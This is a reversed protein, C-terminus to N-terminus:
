RWGLWRPRSDCFRQYEQPFLARLYGEEPLVVGYHLTLAFVPVMMATGPSLGSLAIGGLIGVLCVYIPNRSHRFPGHTILTTTAGFTPVATRARWMLWAAWGAIALGALVLLRGGWVVLAPPTLDAARLGAQVLLWDLGWGLAVAVVFAVPPHVVVPPGDSQASM